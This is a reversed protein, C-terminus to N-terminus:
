LIGWTQLCLALALHGLYIALPHRGVWALVPPLRDGLQVWLARGTFGVYVLLFTACYSYGVAVTPTEYWNALVLGAVLAGVALCTPGCELLVRATCLVVVLAVLWFPGAMGLAGLLLAALVGAGLQLAKRGPRGRDLLAGACVVFLPMSLRTLTHRVDLGVHTLALGHDVLMLVIALGRLRDLGALRARPSAQIDSTHPLLSGSGAPSSPSATNL